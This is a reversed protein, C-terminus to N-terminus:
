RTVFFVTTVSETLCIENIINLEMFEMNVNNKSINNVIIVGILETRSFSRVNKTVLITITVIRQCLETVVLNIAIM